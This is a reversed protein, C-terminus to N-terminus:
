PWAPLALARESAEWARQAMEVDTARKPLHVARPKPGYARGSEVEGTVLSFLLPAAGQEVPRMVLKGFARGLARGLAGGQNINDTLTAPPFAGVFRVDRLATDRARRTAEVNMLSLLIKTSPSAASRSFRGRDAKALLELDVKAFPSLYTGESLTSVVRASPTLRDRELLRHLLLFHGLYNAAYTREFHEETEEFPLGFVGGNLLVRDLRPAADALARMSRMSSLDHVHIECRRAAEGITREFDRVCAEAKAEDRAIMWVRAGRLALVRACERGLGSTAGTVLAVEGSMDVGETLSEATERV